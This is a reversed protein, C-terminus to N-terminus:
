SSPVSFYQASIEELKKSLEILQNNFELLKSNDLINSNVSLQHYYRIGEQLNRTFGSFYEIQKKETVNAPQQLQTELYNVYLRLENIFVHPRSDDHILNNRGYIHDTMQLLSAEEGFWALNPGPCVSVGPGEHKTDLDNALLASTGLGVCICSKETITKYEKIYDTFCLEKHKLEEIRLTQYQRSATCIPRETYEDNLSAYRKTCISGPTGTNIMQDKEVDKSNGKVTNFPVGLPSINSLYLDDEGANKLLQLTEQDINSVEPVLLFPTGWGVSDLQYHDLLFQHESATGVGGQATVKIHPAEDPYFRNKSKLAQCFVPFTENILVARQNKFEELIPGMLYGQTAFAHGGCNLGSEIRYESVWLGKKALFKGQILASRFDSVKLIIKKSFNGTEDPYFGEFEELYAYLRPNMGASLVLSANVSSNAFGRLASHADNFEAPLKEKNKYIARDLKTMINVDISGVPLHQSVWEKISAPSHDKVFQQFRQKLESTDPLMEMYKELEGGKRHVSEKLAEVKEKVAKDMLDLFATIRKARFDEIRSSIGQFPVNMQRCHFERMKEILIDDVLSIVSSIGLHAVRVPTDITFGIGM